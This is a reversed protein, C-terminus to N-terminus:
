PKKQMPSTASRQDAGPAVAGDGQKHLALTQRTKTSLIM